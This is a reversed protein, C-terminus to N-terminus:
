CGSLKVSPFFLMGLLGFSTGSQSGILKFCSATLLSHSATCPALEEAGAAPRPSAPNDRLRLQPRSPRAPRPTGQPADQGPTARGAGLVTRM